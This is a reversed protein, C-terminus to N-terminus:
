MYGVAIFQCTFQSLDAGNNVEQHGSLGISNGNYALIKGNVPDYTTPFALGLQVGNGASFAPSPILATIEQLGLDAPTVAEGGTVYTADFTFRGLVIVLDKDGIMRMPRKGGATMELTTTLAM